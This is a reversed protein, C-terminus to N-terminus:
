NMVGKARLSVHNREGIVIHDLLPIDLLEGVAQLKKTVDIDEPSPTADGSPHNHAVIIASAGERVAERFVERPGVVSMTLTGIHITSWKMVRNKADLFFVFFHERKEGKLIQKLLQVVDEQDEFEDLEGQGAVASRRGLEMLAQARFIEFEEFGFEGRLEGASIESLRSIRNYRVLLQRATEEGEIADAERRAFGVAILDIPSAARVGFTRIRSITTQSGSPV